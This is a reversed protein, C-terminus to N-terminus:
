GHTRRPLIVCDGRSDRAVRRAGGITTEEDARNAPNRVLRWIGLVTPLAMGALTFVALMLVLNELHYPRALAFLMAYIALIVVVSYVRSAVAYIALRRQQTRSLLPDETQPEDLLWRRLREFLLGQARTAMNPIELWDALLYYGDYRLLPNANVALTGVSCIVAVGLLWTNLMGAETYWWGSFALAALVAEVIMGAASVAMRQWKRTFRWVDSVDCYLAPFFALLMIGMEHCRGGYHRCTVAHGLEHLVKVGAITALWLVVYGPSWLENVRPLKGMVDSSHAVLLWLAYVLVAAAAFGVPRSFLWSVRRHLADIFAGADWSAVRFSLMKLLSQWREVRARDHAGTITAEGPSPATSVLLGQEFLQNIGQQLAAPTITRPAFRTEFERKLEALTAPEHLREWLFHEAPSLQFHELSLPDKLVYSPQGAVPIAVEEIDGRTRLGLPREVTSQPHPSKVAM